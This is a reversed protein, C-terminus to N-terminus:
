RLTDADLHNSPEDLILVDPRRFLACALAVRMRQGGSLYKVPILARPGVVGLNALYSRQASEQLHERDFFGVATTDDHQLRKIHDLPSLAPDLQEGKYHHQQLMCVRSGVQRSVSGEVPTNAGTILNLLGVLHLVHLHFYHLSTYM